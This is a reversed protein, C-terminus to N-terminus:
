VGSVKTLGLFLGAIVFIAIALPLVTLMLSCNALSWCEACKGYVTANMQYTVGGYSCNTVLVSANDAVNPPCLLEGCTGNIVRTVNATNNGTAIQTGCCDAGTALVLARVAIFAVAGIVGAILGNVVQNVM